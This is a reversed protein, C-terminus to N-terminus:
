FGMRLTADIPFKPCLGLLSDRHSGVPFRGEVRLEGDSAETQACGRERMQQHPDREPREIGVYLAGCQVRLTM